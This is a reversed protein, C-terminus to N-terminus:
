SQTKRKFGIMRNESELYAYILALILQIRQEKRGKWIEKRHNVTM